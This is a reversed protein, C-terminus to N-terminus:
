VFVTNFHCIRINYKTAPPSWYGRATSRLLPRAAARLEALGYAYGNRVAAGQGRWVNEPKVGFGNDLYLSSIKSLIYPPRQNASFLHLLSNRTRSRPSHSGIQFSSHNELKRDQVNIRLNHFIEMTQLDKDRM